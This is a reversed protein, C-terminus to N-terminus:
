GGRGEETSVVCRIYLTLGQRLAESFCLAMADRFEGVLARSWPQCVYTGSANANFVSSDATADRPRTDTM